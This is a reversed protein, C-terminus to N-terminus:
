ISNTKAKFCQYFSFFFYLVLRAFSCQWRGAELRASTVKLEQFDKALDAALSNFEGTKNVESQM